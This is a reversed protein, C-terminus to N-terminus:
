IAPTAEIGAVQEVVAAGEEAEARLLEEAKYWNTEADEVTGIETEALWLM